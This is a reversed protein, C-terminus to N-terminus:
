KFAPKQTKVLSELEIWRSHPGHVHLKVIFGMTRISNIAWFGCKLDQAKPFLLSRCLGYYEM